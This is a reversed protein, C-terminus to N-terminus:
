FTEIMMAKERVHNNHTESLKQHMMALQTKLENKDPSGPTSREIDYGNSSRSMAPVLSLPGGSIEIDMTNVDLPSSVVSIHGDTTLDHGNTLAM